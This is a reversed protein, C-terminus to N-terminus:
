RLIIVTSKGVVVHGAGGLFAPQNAASYVGVPMKQGNLVLTNVRVGVGEAIEVKGGEEVTLTAASSLNDRGDLALLGGDKVVVPGEWAAEATLRLNGGAATLVNTEGSSRGRLELSATGKKVLAADIAGAFYSPDPGPVDAKYDEKFTITKGPARFDGDAHMWGWESFILFDSDSEVDGKLCVPNSIRIRAGKTEDVVKTEGVFKIKNAIPVQYAGFSFFPGTGDMNRTLEVVGEAAGFAQPTFKTNGLYACGDTLLTGGTYSSNARYEIQGSGFKRYRGAGAFATGQILNTSNWICVGDEGFDFEEAALEVENTFRAIVMGKPAVGTSWNAGESWAGAAGGIWTTVTGGVLLIGAGTVNDPLNGAQYTGPELAQDGLTLSPLVTLSAVDLKAGDAVCVTADDATLNAGDFRLVTGEGTATVSSGAWRASETFSVTGNEISLTTGTADSTGTFRVECAGKKVLQAEVTGTFDLTRNTGGANGTITVTSDGARLDAIEVRRNADVWAVDLTFDAETSLVGTLRAARAFAVAAGTGVVCVDNTLKVDGIQFKSPGEVYVKGTGMGGLDPCPEFTGGRLRWAGTLLPCAGDQFFVGGGSGTIVLDGSGTFSVGCRVTGQTRQITLGATGVDFTTGKFTVSEQIVLTDGPQPTQAPSWNAAATFDGTADGSWTLTEAHAGALGGLTAMGLLMWRGLRGMRNM